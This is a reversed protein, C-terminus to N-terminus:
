FKYYGEMVHGLENKYEFYLNEEGRSTIVIGDKLKLLDCIDFWKINIDSNNKAQRKM